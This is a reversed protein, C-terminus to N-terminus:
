GAEHAIQSLAAWHLRQHLRLPLLAEPELVHRRGLGADVVDQDANVLGPDAAGVEVDVAPVRPPLLRDRHGHHDGVLGGALDHGEARVYAVELHAVENAALAVDDAPPAPVAH